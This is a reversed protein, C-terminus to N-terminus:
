GGDVAVPRPGSRLAHSRACARRGGAWTVVSPAARGVRLRWRRLVGIRFGPDAHTTELRAYFAGRLWWISPTPRRRLWWISPM